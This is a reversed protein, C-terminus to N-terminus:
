ELAPHICKGFLRGGLKRRGFLGPLVLGGELAERAVPLLILLSGCTVTPWVVVGLLVDVEELAAVGVREREVVQGLLIEKGIRSPAVFVLSLRERLETPHAPLVARHRQAVSCREGREPIIREHGAERAGLIVLAERVGNWLRALVLAVEM